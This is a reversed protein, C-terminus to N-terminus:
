DLQTAVYEITLSVEDLTGKNGMATDFADDSESTSFEWNWGITLGTAIDPLANAEVNVEYADIAAVMASFTDYNTGNFNWTINKHNDIDQAVSHAKVNLEVKYDVEPAGKGTTDAYNLKVTDTKSTGPAIVNKGDVSDVTDNYVDDFLNFTITTADGFGWAAVRAEDAVEGKTVYKAFTGGVVSSTMLVLVLLLSALRMMRNKKM